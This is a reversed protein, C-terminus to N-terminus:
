PDQGWVQQQGEQAHGLAIFSPERPLFELELLLEPEALSSDGALFLVLRCWIATAQLAQRRLFVLTHISLQPQSLM